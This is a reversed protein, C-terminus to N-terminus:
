LYYATIIVYEGEGKFGTQRAIVRLTKSGFKRVYAVAGERAETIKSPRRITDAVRSALINREMMSVRVHHTFRLKM